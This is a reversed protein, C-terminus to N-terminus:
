NRQFSRTTIIGCYNLKWLHKSIDSMSSNKKSCHTPIITELAIFSWIYDICKKKLPRKFNGPKMITSILMHHNSLITEFSDSLKFLNNKNAPIYPWYLTCNQVPPLNIQNYSMFFCHNACLREQWISTGIIIINEYRVYYFPLVLSLSQLFSTQLYRVTAM